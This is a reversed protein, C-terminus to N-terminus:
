DMPILLVPANSRRVVEYSVSGVFFEKVRGHGQSGMVVLSVGEMTAASIVQKPSGHKVVVNVEPVGRKLLDERMPALRKADAEDAERMLRGATFHREIANTDQVHLLTVARAGHDALQQVYAFARNANESFDHPMLIHGRFDCHILDCVYEDGVATFRLRVVLTPRTMNYVIAGAVGGLLLGMGGDEGHSGVVVLDCDREEALRNIQVQPLGMVLEPEVRFGLATLRETQRDLGRRALDTLEMLTTGTAKTSLCNVLLAETTGLSALGGLADIVMDSAKSLDTAVLMKPFM